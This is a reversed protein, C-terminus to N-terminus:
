AVVPEDPLSRPITDRLSLIEEPCDYVGGSLVKLIIGLQHTATTLHRRHQRKTRATSAGKMSNLVHDAADLIETQRSLYEQAEISEFNRFANARIPHRNPLRWEETLRYLYRQMFDVVYRLRIQITQDTITDEWQNIIQRTFHRIDEDARRRETALGSTKEM